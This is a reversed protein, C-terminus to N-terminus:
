AELERMIEDFERGNEEETIGRFKAIADLLGRVEIMTVPSHSLLISETELNEAIYKLLNKM